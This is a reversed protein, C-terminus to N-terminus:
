AQQSAVHLCHVLPARKGVPPSGTYISTHDDSLDRVRWHGRASSWADDHMSKTRVRSALQLPLQPRVEVRGRVNLCMLGFAAEISQHNITSSQNDWMLMLFFCFLFSPFFCITPWGVYWCYDTSDADRLHYMDPICTWIQWYMNKECGVTMDMLKWEQTM